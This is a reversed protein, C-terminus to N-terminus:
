DSLPGLWPHGPRLLSIAEWIWSRQEETLNPLLALLDLEDHPRLDPPLGDRWAPPNAKYFLIVEPVVTSLGWSSQRVCRRLPLTIRPERSFIWDRGSRENLLVELTFGDDSRAHIHAPLDLRRGDWPEISDDAVHNDHGILQWDGLHDFIARQDDQFVAIDVDAHSRTQGGLWADVAWGGCLYWMPRFGRM